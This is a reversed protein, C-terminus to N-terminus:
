FNNSKIKSKFGKAKQIALKLDRTKKRIKNQYM